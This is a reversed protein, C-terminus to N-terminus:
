TFAKCRICTPSEGPATFLIGRAGCRSKGGEIKVHTMRAPPDANPPFKSDAKCRKCTVLAADSTWQSRGRNWLGCLFHGYESVMHMTLKHRPTQTQCQGEKGHVPEPAEVAGHTPQNKTWETLCAHFAASLSAHGHVAAYNEDLSDADVPGSTHAKPSRVMIHVGTSDMTMHLGHIGYRRMTGELSELSVPSVIQLSPDPPFKWVM